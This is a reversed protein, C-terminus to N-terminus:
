KEEYLEELQLQRFYRIIIEEYEPTYNQEIAKDMANIFYLNQNGFDEPVISNSNINYELDATTSKRKESFDEIKVLLLM